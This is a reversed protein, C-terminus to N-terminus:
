SSARPRAGPERYRDLMAGLAARQRSLAPEIERLFVEGAATAAYVRRPPGGSRSTDWSSSVLGEAEMARLVSYVGAAVPAELGLGIMRQVLEYGHSEHERLLILIAPRQYNSLRAM